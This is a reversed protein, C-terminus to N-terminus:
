STMCFWSFTFTRLMLWSSAWCLYYLLSMSPPPWAYSRELTETTIDKLLIHANPLIQHVFGPSIPRAHVHVNQSNFAFL